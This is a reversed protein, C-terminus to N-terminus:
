TFGGKNETMYFAGGHPRKTAHNIVKNRIVRYLEYKASNVTKITKRDKRM